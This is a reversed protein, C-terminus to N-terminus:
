RAPKLRSDYEVDDITISTEAINTTVVVKSDHVSAVQGFLFCRSFSAALGQSCSLSAAQLGTKARQRQDHFTFTPGM